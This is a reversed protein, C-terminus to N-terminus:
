HLTPKVNEVATPQRRNFENYCLIAAMRVYEAVEELSQELEEQDEDEDYGLQAISRLDDIAEGVEDKVQALKPQMMGLGLLFHNVWGSLADAREFVTVAEGEPLMLQFMFEDDALTERIQDYVQQLPQSLAQPFAVGENTLDHVLTRWSADNNGGCLLGSILGHMEAATLAVAQQNLAASLTFYNLQTNQISM